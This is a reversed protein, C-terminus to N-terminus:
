MMPRGNKPGSYRLDPCTIRCGIDGAAIARVREEAYAPTWWVLEVFESEAFGGYWQAGEVRPSWSRVDALPLAGPLEDALVLLEIDSYEDAVGRATSGTLVVDSVSPPLQQTVRQAVALLDDSRSM